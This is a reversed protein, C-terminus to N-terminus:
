QMAHYVSPWSSKSITLSLHSHFAYILVYIMEISSVDKCNWPSIDMSKIAEFPDTNSLQDLFNLPVVQIGLDEALKMRPGCKVIEEENSIVAATKGRIWWNVNGGMDKIIKTIEKTTKELTGIVAFELGFM